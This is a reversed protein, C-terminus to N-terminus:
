SYIFLFLIFYFGKLIFNIRSKFNCIGFLYSGGRGSWPTCHTVTNTYSSIKTGVINLLAYYQTEQIILLSKKLRCQMHWM